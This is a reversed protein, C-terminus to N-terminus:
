VDGGESVGSDGESDRCRDGFGTGLRPEVLDRAGRTASRAVCPGPVSFDELPPLSLVAYIRQLRHDLDAVPEYSRIIIPYSEAATEPGQDRAKGPMQMLKGHPGSLQRSTVAIFKQGHM